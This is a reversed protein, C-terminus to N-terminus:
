PLPFSRKPYSSGGAGAAPNVPELQAVRRQLM